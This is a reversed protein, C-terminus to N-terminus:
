ATKKKKLSKDACRGTWEAPRYVGAEPWILSSVATLYSLLVAFRVGPKFFIFLSSTIWALSTWNALSIYTSIVTATRVHRLGIFRLGFKLINM